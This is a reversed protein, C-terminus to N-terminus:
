CIGQRNQGIRVPRMCRIPIFFYRMVRHSNVSLANSGLWRVNLLRPIPARGKGISTHRVRGMRHSGRLLQLCGNATFQPELAVAVSLMDPFLCGEEYWSGYDQHWDWRAADRATKRSLKSHWHYVPQGDLLDASCEVLRAVRVYAGLLDSRHGSWTLLEARGGKSDVVYFRKADLGRARALQDNLLDIEQQAFLGRIILYGDANFTEKQKNDVRKLMTMGM